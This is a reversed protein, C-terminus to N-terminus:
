KRVKRLPLLAALLIALGSVLGMDCGSSSSHTETDSPSVSPSVSPSPEESPSVEDSPNDVDSPSVEDSPTDTDSPSVEDTPTVEPEAGPDGLIYPAWRGGTLKVAGYVVETDSTAVTLPVFRTGDKVLFVADAEELGEAATSASAKGLDSAYLSLAKKKLKDIDGKVQFTYIGTDNARIQSFLALVAEDGIDDKIGKYLTEATAFSMKTNDLGNYTSGLKPNIITGEGLADHVAAEFNTKESGQPNWEELAVLAPVTGVGLFTYNIPIRVVWFASGATPLTYYPAYGIGTNDSIGQASLAIAPNYTARGSGAIGDKDGSVRFQAYIFDNGDNQFSIEELTLKVTPVTLSEDSYNEYYSAGKKRDLSIIQYLGEQTHDKVYADKSTVFLKMDLSPDRLVDAKDQGGWTYQPIFYFEDKASAITIPETATIIDLSKGTIKDKTLFINTGDFSATSVGYAYGEGTGYALISEFDTSVFDAPDATFPVDAEDSDGVKVALHVNWTRAKAAGGPTVEAGVIGASLGLTVLALLLVVLSKRM